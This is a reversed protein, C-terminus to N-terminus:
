PLCWGWHDERGDPAACLHGTPTLVRRWPCASSGGHGGSNSSRETPIHFRLVPCSVSHDRLLYTVSECTLRYGQQPPYEQQQKQSLTALAARM